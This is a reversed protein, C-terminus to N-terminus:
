EGMKMSEIILQLEKDQGIRESMNAELEHLMSDIQEQSPKEALQSVLGDMEDEICKLEDLRKAFSEELSARVSDTAQQIIDDLDSPQFCGDESNTPSVSEARLRALSDIQSGIMSRVDTLDNEIKESNSSIYHQQKTIEAEVLSRLTAEKQELLEDFEDKNLKTQSLQDIQQIILSLKM